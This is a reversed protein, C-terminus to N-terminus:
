LDRANSRVTMGDDTEAGATDRQPPHSTPLDELRLEDCEALALQEIVRELERANAPWGHAM